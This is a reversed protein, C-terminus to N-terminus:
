STSATLLVQMGELLGVVPTYSTQVVCLSDDVTAVGIVQMNEFRPLVYPGWVSRLKLRGYTGGFPLSGLNTLEIEHAFAVAAFDAVAKVDPGNRLSAQIASLRSEIRARTKTPEIDAKVKRALNWFDDGETTFVSSATTVFVGCHEGAGLVRRVSVPSWVRVPIHRWNPALNRAGDVLATALACHVTTSEARARDRLRATLAQPLALSHVSPRTDDRTRWRMPAGSAQSQPTEDPIAPAAPSRASLLLDDESPTPPLAALTGRALATLIDRIAYALSMGDAIAHHAVLILAADQDAHILVARILPVDDAGFPTALEAAVENEWRKAPDEHITRLPIQARSGQQFHPIRGPEGVIGVAMLSHRRQLHDLANRWAAVDTGGSVHAAVAFHAPRHQDLLWLLHESAGLQRLAGPLDGRRGVRHGDDVLGASLSSGPRSQVTHTM